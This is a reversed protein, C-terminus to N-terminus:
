QVFIDKIKIKTFDQRHGRTKEYFKTKKKKFVIIKKSKGHSIVEAIIKTNELLPTGFKTDQKDVIAYVNTFEVEEGPNKLIKDVELIENKKVKYQSKGIKVVAYM